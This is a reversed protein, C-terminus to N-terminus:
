FIGKLIILSNINAGKMFILFEKKDWIIIIM